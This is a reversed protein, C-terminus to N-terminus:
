RTIKQGTQLTVFKFGGQINGYPGLYVAGQNGSKNSNRPGENNHVQCYQGPQLTSHKKYELSEGTLIYRPSIELYIGQKTLFYNLMKTINLVAHIKMLKPIHNFLLSHSFTHSREKVVCIHREIEPVNKNAITRNVRPGAPIKQILDKLAGFEGDVHITHIHFSQQLYFRLIDKFADFIM